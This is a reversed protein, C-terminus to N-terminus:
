GKFGIRHKSQFTSHSFHLQNQKTHHVFLILTANDHYVYV